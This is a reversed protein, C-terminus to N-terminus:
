MSLDPSLPKSYTLIDEIASYGFIVQSKDKLTCAELLRWM